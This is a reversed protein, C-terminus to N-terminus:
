RRVRFEHALATVDVALHCNTAHVRSDLEVGIEEVTADRQGTQTALGVSSPPGFFSRGTHIRTPLHSHCIALSSRGPGLNDSLMKTILLLAM